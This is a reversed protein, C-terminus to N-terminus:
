LWFNLRMWDLIRHTLVWAARRRGVDLVVYGEMGPPLGEITGSLDAEAVFVNKGDHVTSAPGLHFDSLEHDVDPAASAVFTQAVTDRALLVSREPIRMEVRAGDYRALEFLAEGMALRAGLRERLEGATIVGDRPARIRALEIRRTVIAIKSLLGERQAELVRLKGSDFEGMAVDTKADLSLVEAELESRMLVDEHSDLEALLQGRMVQDGPRVYLESLVGDRPCSVVRRDKAAVVCPVTLRYPLTGFALWACCALSLAAVLGSRRRRNSQRMWLGRLTDRIHSTLSRTALRAMPLLSTYNQLESQIRRLIDSTVADERSAALSVIATVEGDIMLPVSAVVGGGRARRWADHLRFKPGRGGESLQIPSRSDLCETMADQIVRVGPNSPRLDLENNVLAVRVQKGDVTGVAAQDLEYRNVLDAVLQVLLRLPKVSEGLDMTEPGGRTTRTQSADTLLLALFGALSEFQALMEYAHARGSDRFVLGVSGAQEGGEGYLVAAIVAVDGQRGSLRICVPEESDSTSMMAHNVQERLSESLAFDARSWEESLPQVGFRAHMVAYDADLLTGIEEIAAAAARHKAKSDFLERLRCQLSSVGVWGPEPDALVFLTDDAATKDKNM